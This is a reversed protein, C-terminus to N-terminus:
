SINTRAAAEAIDLTNRTEQHMAWLLSGGVLASWIILLFLYSQSTNDTKM